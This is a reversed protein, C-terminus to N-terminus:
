DAALSQVTPPLAVGAARVALSAAHRPESRVLLRRGHHVTATETLSDLDARIKSWSGARGLAAIRQELESKLVLALFSCFVHGRFVGSGLFDGAKGRAPGLQRLDTPALRQDQFLLAGAQRSSPSLDPDRCPTLAETRAAMSCGPGSLCAATNNVPTRAGAM